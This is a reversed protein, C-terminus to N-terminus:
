TDEEFVIFNSILFAAAAVVFMYGGEKFTDAWLVAKQPKKYYYEQGLGNGLVTLIFTLAAVLFMGANGKM